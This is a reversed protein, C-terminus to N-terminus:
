VRAFVVQMIREFEIEIHEPFAVEERLIARLEADLAATVKEQLNERLEADLAATNLSNDGYRQYGQDSYWDASPWEGGAEDAVSLLPRWNDAERNIIGDPMEPDAAAIADAYDQTWRAAKRSM